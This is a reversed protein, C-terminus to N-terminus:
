RGRNRVLLVTELEGGTGGDPDEGPEDTPDDDLVALATLRRELAKVNEANNISAVGNVSVSLPSALLAARRARLVAIAVGTVSGLDAFRENLAADDPKSGIEDRLWALQKASLDAM